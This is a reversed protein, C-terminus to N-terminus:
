TQMRGAIATTSLGPVKEVIHIRGGHSRVLPAEICDAGYEAGNVHVHPKVEELFPMPVEEDFIHVYDVYRLALLMEAREREGVFPRDAGKYARVSRDSNLGVILVDGQDRAERLIHLHGSHLIDFSGNITVIRKGQSRLTTALPGLQARDLLNNLRNQSSGDGRLEGLSVTATGLKGVAIGAARNALVISERESAGAALALSFAAVVTDGAGSVDFVERAVAPESFQAAGSKDFFTIGKAGMTLLICSQFRDALERGVTDILQPTPAADPRGLLGLAEKWNPTLYDCGRYFSAHQPRPDVIVRKGAARSMAIVRQCLAETLLGKAYDSIVVMSCTPLHSKIAALTDAEITASNSVPSEYDLRVLQQQQGVVRVKRITPQDRHVPVFDIGASAALAAFQRGAEDAGVCGILTSHGALATINHSTNAAGGLVTRSSTVTVIPVPAEPSIRSCDGSLYEDLMVDGIVLIQQGPFKDFLDRDSM